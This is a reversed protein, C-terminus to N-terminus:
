QPRVEVTRTRLRDVHWTLNSGTWYILGTKSSSECVSAWASRGRLQELVVSPSRRAQHLLLLVQLLVDEEIREVASVHVRFWVCVCVCVCVFVRLM